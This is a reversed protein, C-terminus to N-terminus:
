QENDRKNILQRARERSIPPDFALRAMEALSKYQIGKWVVARKRRRQNYRYVSQYAANYRGEFKADALERMNAYIKGEFEVPKSERKTM